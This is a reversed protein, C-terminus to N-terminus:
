KTAAPATGEAPKAEPLKTNKYYERAAAFVISLDNPITKTEFMGKPSKAPVEIGNIRSRNTLFQYLANDEKDYSVTTFLAISVVSLPDYQNDVMKGVTKPKLRVTINNSTEDEAHMMIAMNLDPRLGKATSVVKQFALAVETFKGYGQESAKSFFLDSMIFGADDIIINKIHPQAAVTALTTVIAASQNLVVMNKQQMNYINDSDRFPLPKNSCNIIFTEKPNLTEISTSKGTGTNGIILVLNAM